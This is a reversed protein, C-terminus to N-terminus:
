ITYKPFDPNIKHTGNEYILLPIGLMLEKEFFKKILSRIDKARNIDPCQIVIPKEEKYCLLINAINKRIQPGISSVVPRDINHKKRKDVIYYIETENGNGDVKFISTLEKVTTRKRDKGIQTDKFVFKLRSIPVQTNNTDIEAIVQKESHNSNVKSSSVNDKNDNREQTEKQIRLANDNSLHSEIRKVPQSYCGNGLSNAMLYWYYAQEMSKIVVKDGQEYYLGIRFMSETSGKNAAIKFENFAEKYQKQYDYICGIEYHARINGLDAAQKYYKLALALNRPTFIISYTYKSNYLDGLKMMAELNGAEAAKSFLKLCLEKEEKNNEKCRKVEFDNDDESIEKRYNDDDPYILKPYYLNFLMEAAAFQMDSDKSDLIQNYKKLEIKTM